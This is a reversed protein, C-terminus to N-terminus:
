RPAVPQGRRSTRAERPTLDRDDDGLNRLSDHAESVGSQETSMLSLYASLLEVMACTTDSARADAIVGVVEAQFRVLHGLARDFAAVADSTGSMELGQADGHM